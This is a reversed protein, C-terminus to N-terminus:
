AGDYRADFAMGLAIACVRLVWFPLQCDYVGCVDVGCGSECVLMLDFYVALCCLVCMYVGLM